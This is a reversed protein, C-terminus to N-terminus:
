VERFLGDITGCFFDTKWLPPGVCVMRLMVVIVIVLLIKLIAIMNDESLLDEAILILHCFDTDSIFTKKM